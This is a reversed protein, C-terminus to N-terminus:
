YIPLLETYSLIEWISTFVEWETAMCAGIFMVMCLFFTSIPIENSLYAKNTHTKGARENALIKVVYFTDMRM